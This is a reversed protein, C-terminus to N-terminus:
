GDLYLRLLDSTERWNTKYGIRNSFLVRLSSLDFYWLNSGNQSKCGSANNHVAMANQLRMESTPHKEARYIGRAEAVNEEKLTEAVRM